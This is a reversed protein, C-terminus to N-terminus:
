RKKREFDDEIVEVEKNNERVVFMRLERQEKAKCKHGFNYKEDCRFCLENEKRAQFEADFLQKVLGEQRNEGVAVGRLTITRM